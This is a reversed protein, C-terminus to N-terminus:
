EEDDSEKYEVVSIGILNEFVYREYCPFYIGLTECGHKVELVYYPKVHIGADSIKLNYQKYEGKNYPEDKNWQPLIAKKNIRRGVGLIGLPFSFVTEADALCLKNDVFYARMPVNIFPTYALPPTYLKVKDNKVTYNSVLVDIVYANEPIGLERSAKDGASELNDIKEQMNELKFARKEKIVAFAWLAGGLILALIGSICLVPVRRITELLSIDARLMSGVILLGYLLAVYRFVRVFLPLKSKEVSTDLAEKADELQKLTEGDLKKSIFYDAYIKDSNKDDTVDFGFIPKIM